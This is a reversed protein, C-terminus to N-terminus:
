VKEENKPELQWIMDEVCDLDKSSCTDVHKIVPILRELASGMVLTTVGVNVVANVILQISGLWALLFNLDQAFKHQFMAEDASYIEGRFSCLKMDDVVNPIHEAFNKCNSIGVSHGDYTARGDQEESVIKQIAPIEKLKKVVKQLNEFSNFMKESVTVNM